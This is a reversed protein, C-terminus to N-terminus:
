AAKDQNLNAQFELIRLFADVVKPDFQASACRKLEERAEEPTMRGCHPRETLMAHYADVVSIIRAILPIEEGKLCNPYGNGDWWEHHYLLGPLM